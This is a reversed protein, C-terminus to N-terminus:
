PAGEWEPREAFVDKVIEWGHLGSLWGKILDHCECRLFAGKPMAEKIWPLETLWRKRTHYGPVGAVDCEQMACDFGFVHVERPNFKGAFFLANPFTFGCETMGQALALAKMSDTLNGLRWDYIPLPEWRIGERAVDKKWGTNTLFGVRPWHVEGALIPEINRRDSFAHWDSQFLWGAGNVAIVLDFHERVPNFHRILSPGGGLVAIKM